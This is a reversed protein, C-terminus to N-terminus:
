ATCSHKPQSFSIKRKLPAATSQSVSASKKIKLPAATSQSVSASKKKLRRLQAKASQLQV